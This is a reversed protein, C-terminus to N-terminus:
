FIELVYNRTRCQHEDASVCVGFKNQIKTPSEFTSESILKVKLFFVSSKKKKKVKFFKGGAFLNVM